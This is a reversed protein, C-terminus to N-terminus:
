RNGGQGANQLELLHGVIRAMRARAAELTRSLNAVKRDLERLEQDRRGLEFDKSLLRQRLRLVEEELARNEKRLRDVEEGSSAQVLRPATEKGSDRIMSGYLGDALRLEVTIRDFIATAEVAKEAEATTSALERLAQYIERSPERLAPAADDGTQRHYGQTESLFRATDTRVSSIARPWEIGLDASLKCVAKEWDRLLGNFSVFSRPWGRTDREAALTYRLWLLSSKDAGFGDRKELSAAVKAPNGFIHIVRTEAGFTDLARRWLPMLLCLRPDKVVFLSADAFHAELLEEIRSRCRQATSTDFWGRSMPLIDDWASGAAELAEENLEMVEKSEWFGRENVGWLPPMLNRPLRAGLLNLIRTIASTGSRHVGLVLLAVKNSPDPTPLGSDPTEM